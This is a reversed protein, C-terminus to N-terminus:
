KKIIVNFRFKSNGYKEIYQDLIKIGHGYKESFQYFWNRNYYLHMLDAYKKEYEGEPMAFKRANESQVKKALDPIELIAVTKKAKLLMREIVETAYNYDKFYHFVSNSIVIDYKPYIDMDIADLVQFDQNKILCQAISILSGSYDIGGVKHGAKYWLFLFAGSGCGVEFITDTPELNILQSISNIYQKWYELEIKGAGNDFGDVYILDQLNFEQTKKIGTITKNNWIEQWSTM